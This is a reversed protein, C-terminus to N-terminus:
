VGGESLGARQQRLGVRSGINEVKFGSLDEVLLPNTDGSFVLDGVWTVVAGSLDDILGENYNAVFVAPDVRQGGYTRM